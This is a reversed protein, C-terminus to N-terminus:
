TRPTYFQNKWERLLTFVELPSRLPHGAYAEASRIIEGVHCRLFPNIIKEEGLLAPLSPQNANRLSAVQQQKHKIALNSPEVHAAFQLNQLTYEHTCFIRTTDPLQAIKQLSAMLQSATGEFLRGCGASFLTDGCFLVDPLSYAIHDLTHGPTNIVRIPAPLFPLTLQEPESLPHTIGSIRSHTPGYVALTKNRTLDSIGGTHDTHHHTILIAALDLNQQNKLITQGLEMLYYIGNAM